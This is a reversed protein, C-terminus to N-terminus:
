VGASCALRYADLWNQNITRFPDVDNKLAPPMAARLRDFADLLGLYDSSYCKSVAGSLSFRCALPDWPMTPRFGKFTHKLALEVTTHISPNSLLESVKM